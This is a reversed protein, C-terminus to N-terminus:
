LGGAQKRKLETIGQCEACKTCGIVAIRRAEEIAEGCDECYIASVAGRNTPRNALAAQITQEVVENARDIIEAM